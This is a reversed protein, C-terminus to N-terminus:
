ASSPMRSRKVHSSNLRTSKRDGFASKVRKSMELGDRTDALIAHDAGLQKAFDLRSQSIDTYSFYFVTLM